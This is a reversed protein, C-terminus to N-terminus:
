PAAADYRTRPRPRQRGQAPNSDHPQASPKREISAFIPPSAGLRKIGVFSSIAAAIRASVYSLGTGDISHRMTAILWTIFFSPRGPGGLLDDATMTNAVRSLGTSLVKAASCSRSRPWSRAPIPPPDACRVGGPVGAALGARACPQHLRVDALGARLDARRRRPAVVAASATRWRPRRHTRSLVVSRWAGPWGPSLAPPNCAGQAGERRLDAHLVAARLHVGDVPDGHFSAATQRPYDRLVETLPSTPRTPPRAFRPPRM